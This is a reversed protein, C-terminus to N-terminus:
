SILSGKGTGKGAYELRAVKKVHIKTPLVMHYGESSLPKRSRLSTRSYVSLPFGYAYTNGSDM